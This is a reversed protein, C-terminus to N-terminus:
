NLSVYFPEVNDESSFMSKHIPLSNSDLSKISNKLDERDTGDSNNTSINIKSEEPVISGISNITNIHQEDISEKSNKKQELKTKNEDNNNMGEIIYKYNELIGIYIFVSLLGLVINYKTFYIIGIIIILKGILYKNLDYIIKTNTFIILMLLIFIAITRDLGFIKSFMNKYFLLIYKIKIM